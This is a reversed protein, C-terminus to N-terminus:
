APVVEARIKSALMRGSPTLDLAKTRGAPAVLIYQKVYEHAPEGPKLLRGVTPASLGVAGVLESALVARGSQGRQSIEIVMRHASKIVRMDLDAPKVWGDGNRGNGNEPAAAQENLDHNSLAVLDEPNTDQVLEKLLRLAIKRAAANPVNQPGFEVVVALKVNCSTAPFEEESLTEKRVLEFVPM